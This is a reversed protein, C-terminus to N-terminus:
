RHFLFRNRNYWLKFWVKNPRISTANFNMIKEWNMTMTRINPIANERIRCFFFLFCYSKNKNMWFVKGDRILGTLETPLTYAQYARFWSNGPLVLALLWAKKLFSEFDQATIIFGKGLTSSSLSSLFCRRRCSHFRWMFIYNTDGWVQWAQEMENLGDFTPSHKQLQIRFSQISTLSFFPFATTKNERGLPCIM